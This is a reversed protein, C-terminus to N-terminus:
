KSEDGEAGRRAARHNELTMDNGGRGAVRTVGVERHM